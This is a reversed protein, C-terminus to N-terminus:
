LSKSQWNEWIFPYCYTRTHTKALLETVKQYKEQAHPVFDHFQVQLNAVIEILNNDVLTEIVDYEVGEANIKMLDINRINNERIFNCINKTHVAIKEGKKKVMSSSDESVFLSDQSEKGVLGFPLTIINKNQKFKKVLFNYFEPVPEFAYIKSQYMAYITALWEGRYAGIDFVISTTSLDYFYRKDLDSNDNRWQDLSEEYQTKYFLRRISQCERNFKNIIRDVTTM